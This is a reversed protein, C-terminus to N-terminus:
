GVAAVASGRRAFFAVKELSMTLDINEVHVHGPVPLPAPAFNLLGRVGARVLRDAAMPAESAPVALVAVEVGTESVIREMDEWAYCRCGLVVRGVKAPDVDFAGVITLHPRRRPFYALLARGLNGLGVLVIPQPAPPDLFRCIAEILYGVHYGRAPSGTFGIGMLDRRVQAATNGALGALDHSYIHSLGLAQQSKLLRRYLSLRGIVKESTM